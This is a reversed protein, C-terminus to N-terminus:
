YTSQRQILTANEQVIIQSILSVLRDNARVHVVFITFKTFIHTAKSCRSERTGTPGSSVDVSGIQKGSQNGTKNVKRPVRRNKSLHGIKNCNFANISPTFGAKQNSTPSSYRQLATPAQTPPHIRPRIPDLNARPINSPIATIFFHALAEVVFPPRLRERCQGWSRRSFRYLFVLFEKGGASIWSWIQKAAPGFVTVLDGTKCCAKASTAGKGRCWQSKDRRWRHRNWIRFNLVLVESEVM